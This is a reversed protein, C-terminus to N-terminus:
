HRHTHHRRAYNHRRGATPMGEKINARGDLDTSVQDKETQEVSSQAEKNKDPAIFWVIFYGVLISPVGIALVMGRTDVGTFILSLGVILIIPLFIFFCLRFFIKM